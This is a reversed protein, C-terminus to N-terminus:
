KKKKKKPTEDEEFDEDAEEILDEDDFSSVNLSSAGEADSEVDSAFESSSDMVELNEDTTLVENGDTGEETGEPEEGEGFEEPEEAVSEGPETTETGSDVSADDAKPKATGPAGPTFVFGMVPSLIGVVGLLAGLGGVTLYAMNANGAYFMFGMACMAALFLGALGPLLGVLLVNTRSV